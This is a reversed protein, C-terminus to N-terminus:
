LLLRCPLPHHGGGGHRPMCLGGPVALVCKFGWKCVHWSCLSDRLGSHYLPMCPWAPLQYLGSPRSNCLQRISMPDCHSSDPGLLFARCSVGHM